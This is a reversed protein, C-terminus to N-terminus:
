VPKVAYNEDRTSTVNKIWTLRYIGSKKGYEPNNRLTFQNLVSTEPCAIQGMKMPWTEVTSVQGKFIPKLNSKTFHSNINVYGPTFTTSFPLSTHRYFTSIFPATSFICLSPYTRSPHLFSSSRFCGFPTIKRSLGFGRAPQFTVCLHRCM